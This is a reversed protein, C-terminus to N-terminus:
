RSAATARAGIVDACGTVVDSGFVGATLASDVAAVTAVTVTITTGSDASTMGSPNPPSSTTNVVTVAGAGIGSASIAGGVGSIRSGADATGASVVDRTPGTSWAAASLALLVTVGAVSVTTGETLLVSM